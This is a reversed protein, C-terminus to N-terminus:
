EFLKDIRITTIKQQEKAALALERERLNSLRQKISTLMEDANKGTACVIFIFGFKDLYAQNYSALEEIVQDSAHKIGSQESSAIEKTTSYKTKLSDPDGIKPHGDFAELLDQERMEAWVTQSSEQLASLSAFPRLGVIEEAWRSASCCQMLTALAQYRPLNNFEEIQVQPSQFSNRTDRFNSLRSSNYLRM